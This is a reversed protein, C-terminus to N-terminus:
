NLDVVQSQSTSVILLMTRSHYEVECITRSAVQTPTLPIIFTPVRKDNLDVPNNPGVLNLDRQEEM